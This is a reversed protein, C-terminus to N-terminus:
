FEIVKIYIKKTYQGDTVKIMKPYNPNDSDTIEYSVEQPQGEDDYGNEFTVNLKSLIEEDTVDDYREVTLVANTKQWNGNEDKEDVTTDWWDRLGDQKSVNEIEFKNFSYYYKDRLIELTNMATDYSEETNIDSAAIQDVQARDALFAATEVFPSMLKRCEQIKKSIDMAAQNALVKVKVDFALGSPADSVHIVYAYEADESPSTSITQEERYTDASFNTLTDGFLIHCNIVAQASTVNEDEDYGYIIEPDYTDLNDAQVYPYHFADDLKEQIQELDSRIQAVADPNTASGIQEKYGAIQNQLARRADNDSFKLLKEKTSNLTNSTSKKLEELYVRDYEEESIGVYSEDMLFNSMKNKPIIRHSRSDYDCVYWLNGTQNPCYFTHSNSGITVRVQVFSKALM